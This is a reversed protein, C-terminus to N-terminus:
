FPAQPNRYWKGLLEKITFPRKEAISRWIGEGCAVALAGDYSDAPLNLQRSREGIKDFLDRQIIPDSGDHGGEFRPVEIEKSEGFLPIVRVVEPKIESPGSHMPDPHITRSVEIRARTGNIALSYGEEPTSFNCSYSVSAGNRYQLVASYTDEIDVEADYIYADDPYQSRYPLQLADWGTGPRGADPSHNRSYNKSFYPCRRRVESLPLLDPSGSNPNWAGTPGYYNLAGFAFVVEPPSGILWSLVDFHHVGKHISLGGSKSRERNWRFFYSSGHFTDLNYVYEINTIRGAEGKAILDRVLALQTNYRANHAVVLAGRSKNEAELVTSMQECSIGAPKEAIVRLGHNLGAIIHEEHTYDPGAVLLVDPRCEELFNDVGCSADFFPINLGMNANFVQVRERDIDLIGVLESSASFDNSGPTNAKGLLPLLFHNIARVSLGCLPYRTKNMTFQM